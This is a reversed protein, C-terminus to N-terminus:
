PTVPFDKNRFRKLPKIRLPGIDWFKAYGYRESFPVFKRRSQIGIWLGPGDFFRFCLAAEGWSAWFFRGLRTERYRPFQTM